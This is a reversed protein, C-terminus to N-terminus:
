GGGLYSAIGALAFCGVAIASATLFIAAVFPPEIVFFLVAGSVFAFVSASLALVLSATRLQEM